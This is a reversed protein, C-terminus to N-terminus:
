EEPVEGKKKKSRQVAVYTVTGWANHIGIFLLALSAGAVVFLGIAANRLLLLGSLALIAYTGVPALGYWIWDGLDPKYDSQRHAHSIAFLSYVVGAVGCLGWTVAAGPMANWPATAVAAMLLAMCFHVVTPSGFARVTHINGGARADAILTMVVFQLGTLGGAASGVIVYFNQWRALLPLFPEATM